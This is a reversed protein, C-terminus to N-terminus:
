KDFKQPVAIKNFADAERFYSGSLGSGTVGAKWLDWYGHVLDDESIKKVGSAVLGPVELQPFTIAAHSVVKSGAQAADKTILYNFFFTSAAAGLEGVIPAINLASNITKMIFFLAKKEDDTMDPDDAEPYDLTAYGFLELAAHFMAEDKLMRIAAYGASNVLLFAAAARYEHMRNAPTPNHVSQYHAKKMQSAMAVSQSSFRQFYSWFNYGPNNQARTRNVNDFSAQTERTVDEAVAAVHEWYETSGVALQPQLDATMKKAANWITRQVQLDMYTIGALLTSPKIMWLIKDEKGGSVSQMTAEQSSDILKTKFRAYLDASHALMEHYEPMTTNAYDFVSDMTFLKNMNLTEGLSMITKDLRLVDSQLYKWPIRQSAMPGGLLQTANVVMNHGLAFTTLRAHLKHLMKHQFEIENQENLKRDGSGLTHAHNVVGMLHKTVDTLHEGMGVKMLANHLSVGEADKGKLLKGANRIPIAYAHFEAGKKTYDHMMSFIDQAQLTVSSGIIGLPSIVRDWEGTVHEGSGLLKESNFMTKPFYDPDIEMDLGTLEKYTQNIYPVMKDFVQRIAPVLERNLVGGQYAAVENEIAVIQAETFRYKTEMTDTANRKTGFGIGGDKLVDRFSTGTKADVQQAMVSLWVKEGVSMPQTVPVYTTIGNTVDAVMMEVPTTDKLKWVVGQGATDYTIDGLGKINKIGDQWMFGAGKNSTTGLYLMNYRNQATKFSQVLVQYLPASEDGTIAFVKVDLRDFKDQYFKYAERFGKGISSVFGDGTSSALWIKKLISAKSAISDNITTLVKSTEAVEGEAINLQTSAVKQHEIMAHTRIIANYAQRVEAQEMASLGKGMMSASNLPDSPNYMLAILGNVMGSNAGMNTNLNLLKAVDAEFSNAMFLPDINKIDGSLISSKCYEDAPKFVMQKLAATIEKSFQETNWMDTSSVGPVNQIVDFLFSSGIGQQLRQAQIDNQILKGLINLSAIRFQLTSNNVDADARNVKHPIVDSDMFQRANSRLQTRGVMNGVENALTGGGELEKGELMNSALVQAIDNSGFISRIYTWFAQAYGEKAAQNEVFGKMGAVLKSYAQQVANGNIQRVYDKGIADVLAEESGYLEIGRQILPHNKFMWVYHHAFEHPPTDIHGESMSWAVAREIGDLMTAQRAQGIGPAAGYKAQYAEWEMVQINPFKEQLRKLIKNYLKPDSAITRTASAPANMTGMHNGTEMRVGEKLDANVNKFRDKFLTRMDESVADANYQSRTDGDMVFGNTGKAAAANVGATIEVYTQAVGKTFVGGATTLAGDSKALVFYRHGDGNANAVRILPTGNFMMKGLLKTGFSTSPHTVKFVAGSQDLISQASLPFYTELRNLLSTKEDESLQPKEYVFTNEFARGARIRIAKIMDLSDLMVAEIFAAVNQRVTPTVQGKNQEMLRSATNYREVSSNPLLSWLSSPTIKSNSNLLLYDHLRDQFETPLESFSDLLTQKDIGNMGRATKNLGVNIKGTAKDKYVSMNRIFPNNTLKNVMNQAIVYDQIKKLYAERMVPVPNDKLSERANIADIEMAQLTARSDIEEATTSNIPYMVDSGHKLGYLFEGFSNVFASPNDYKGLTVSANLMKNNITLLKDWHRPSREQFGIANWLNKATGIAVEGYSLTLKQMTKIFMDLAKHHHEGLPNDFLELYGKGGAKLSNYMDMLHLVHGMGYKIGKDMSTMSAVSTLAAGEVVATRILSLIDVNLDNGKAQASAILEDLITTKDGPWATDKGEFPGILENIGAVYAKMEPTQLLQIVDAYSMVDGDITELNALLSIENINSMDIGMRSLLLKDFKDLAAQLLEGMMTLNKHSYKRAPVMVGNLLIHTEEVTSKGSATLNTFIKKANAFVGIASTSANMSDLVAMRGTVSNLNVPVEALGAQKLATGLADLTLPHDRKRLFTQSLMAEDSMMFDVFAQKAPGSQNKLFGHLMDGDHDSNSYLLFEAPVKAGNMNAPLHGVIKGVFMSESGSSPVRALIITDGVNGMAPPVMVEPTTLGDWKLKKDPDTELDAFTQLSGGDLQMTTAVQNFTQTLKGLATGYINEDEIHHDVNENEYLNKLHQLAAKTSFSMDNGFVQEILKKALADVQGINTTSGFEKRMQEKMVDVMLNQFKDIFQKRDPLEKGEVAEQIISLMQVLQRKAYAGDTMDHNINFNVTATEPTIKKFNSENFSLSSLENLNIPKLRLSSVKQSSPPIILINPRVDSKTTAMIHAELKDMLEAMKAYQDSTGHDYEMKNKGDKGRVANMTAMKLSMGHGANKGHREVGFFGIKMNPGLGNIVGNSARESMYSNMFGGSDTAPLENLTVVYVPGVTSAVNMGRTSQSKADKLAKAGPRLYIPDGVFVDTLALENITNNGEYLAALRRMRTNADVNQNFLEALEPNKRAMVQVADVYRLSMGDYQVWQKNLEEFKKLLTNTANLRHKLTLDGDAVFKGDAIKFQIYYTANLRKLGEENLLLGDKKSVGLAVADAARKEFAKVIPSNSDFKGNIIGYQEALQDVNMLPANFMYRTDRDGNLMYMHQYGDKTGEFFAVLNDALIGDSRMKDISMGFEKKFSGENWKQRGVAKTKNWFKLIPNNQFFGVKLMKEAPTTGGKETPINMSDSVLDVHTRPGQATVNEGDANRWSTANPEAEVMVKGLLEYYPRTSELVDITNNSNIRQKAQANDLIQLMGAVRIWTPTTSEKEQISKIVEGVYDGKIDMKGGYPQIIRQHYLELLRRSYAVDQAVTLPRGAKIQATIEMSINKYETILSNFASIARSQSMYKEIMGLVNSAIEKPAMSVNMVERRVVGDTGIVSAVVQDTGMNALTNIIAKLEGSDNVNQANLDVLASIRNLMREAIDQELSKKGNAISRMLKIWEKNGGERPVSAAISQLTQTIDEPDLMLGSETFLGTVLRKLGIDSWENPGAMQFSPKISPIGRVLQAYQDFIAYSEPDKNIWADQFQKFFGEVIANVDNHSPAKIRKSDLKFGTREEMKDIEEVFNQMINMAEDKTLLTKMFSYGKLNRSYGDIANMMIYAHPNNFFNRMRSNVGITKFDKERLWEGGALMAKDVVALISNRLKRQEENEAVPMAQSSEITPEANLFENVWVNVENTATDAGLSVSNYVDTALQTINPHKKGFAVVMEDVFEQLSQGMEEISLKALEIIADVDQRMEDSQNEPLSAIGSKNSTWREAIGKMLEAKRAKIAEKRAEPDTPLEAVPAVEKTVTPASEKEKAVPKKTTAKPKKTAKPKAPAKPKSIKKAPAKKVAVPEEEKNLESESEAQIEESATAVAENEKNAESSVGFPLDDVEREGEIAAKAAAMVEDAKSTTPPVLANTSPTKVAQVKVQSLETAYKTEIEKQLDIKKQLVPDDDINLPLLRNLGNSELEESRRQEIDAIVAENSIPETVATTSAVEEVPATETSVEIPLETTAVAVNKASTKDGFAEILSPLAKTTAMEVYEQTTFLIGDGVMHGSAEINAAIQPIPLKEKVGTQIIEDIAKAAIKQEEETHLQTKANLNVVGDVMPVTYVGMSRLKEKDKELLQKKVPAKIADIRALLEGKTQEAIQIADQDVEPDLVALTLGADKVKRALSGLESQEEESLSKFITREQQYEASAQQRLQNFKDRLITKSAESVNPDDLKAALKQEQTETAKRWVKGAAHSAGTMYSVGLATTAFTEFAEGSGYWLVGEKVAKAMAEADSMEPNALKIKNYATGVHEIGGQFTETAGQIGSDSLFRVAKDKLAKGNFAEEIGKGLKKLGLKEIYGVISSTTWSMLQDNDGDRYADALEKGTALRSNVAKDSEAMGAMYPVMGYGMTGVGVVASPVLGMTGGFGAVLSGVYDGEGWSKNFTKTPLAGVTDNEQNMYETLGARFRDYIDAKLDKREGTAMFKATAGDMMVAKFTLTEKPTLGYMISVVDMSMDHITEQVGTVANVLAHPILEVGTKAKKLENWISELNGVEEDSSGQEKMKASYTDLKRKDQEKKGVSGDDFQGNYEKWFDNPDKEKGSIEKERKAAEEITANRANFFGASDQEMEKMWQPNSSPNAFFELRQAIEEDSLTEVHKADPSDKVSSVPDDIVVDMWSNTPVRDRRQQTIFPNRMPSIQTGVQQTPVEAQVPATATQTQVQGEQAAQEDLLQQLLEEDM